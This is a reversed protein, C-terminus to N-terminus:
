SAVPLCNFGSLMSKKTEEEIEGTIVDNESPVLLM